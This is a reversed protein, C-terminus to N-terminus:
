NLSFVLVCFLSHLPSVFTFRHPSSNSIFVIIRAATNSPATPVFPTYDALELSKDADPKVEVSVSANGSNTGNQAMNCKLSALWLGREDATTAAFIYSRKSTSIHFFYRSKAMDTEGEHMDKITTIDIVEDYKGDQLLVWVFM